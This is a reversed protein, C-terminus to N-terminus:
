APQKFKHVPSSNSGTSDNFETKEKGNNSIVAKDLCNQLAKALEEVYPSEFLDLHDGPVDHITVGKLAFPKWGLYKFDPMYFTQKKSRFLDIAGHYPSLKYNRFAIKYLKATKKSYVTFSEPAAQKKFLLKEFLPTLLIKAFRIKNTIVIKPERTMFAFAYATRMFLEYTTLSIKTLLPKHYISQSAYSDFMGLLIVNKGMAKLQKGMEYTILGGFSYGCLAYPGQPNQKIIQEVYHAAIDEMRDLHDDTGNLGRAQLGYVPQEPHLNKALTNFLLVSLGGGHILYVPVKSGTAKIAVLSDWNIDKKDIDIVTALKEITPSEFLATLPLRSGTKKEIAIMLKVAILSHGGLEFFDAHVSVKEMNLLEAWADALFKENKTRPATYKTQQHQYDPKPLAARDIKGNATLPLQKLLVFDNPVMYAPLLKKIESKWHNIQEGGPNINEAGSKVEFDTLSANNINISAPKEPIATAYRAPIYIVEVTNAGGDNPWRVYTKYELKAGLQWLWEPDIGEDIPEIKQKLESVKMTSELDNIWQLLAYDKAIRKNPIGNIQLIASPNQILMEEIWSITSTPQWEVYIDPTVVLPGAGIYLWVDYHCKTGENLFFGRRLQVDVAAIQPILTPLFYFFAPDAILEEEKEIRRDVIKKFASVPLDDGVQHLQDFAYHMKLAALTQVDGIYIVGGPKMVGIANQIVKILYHLDPFYQVVSHAVVLDLSHAEIGSFNDATAVTARVHNWQQPNVSKKENVKNIAVQSFDTAIYSDTGPAVEFLLQGGGCGLEMIKKASIAKIRKIGESAWEQLQARIDTATNYQSGIALDLKQEAIDLDSENQEAMTYLDDWRDRWNLEDSEAANQGPVIYAVLRQDGPRDERCIVLAEKIGNQRSLQHEIEAPEIRHGRIKVQQDMRGLCQIKGDPLYKGLDGSRYMKSGVQKSFPNAVFKEASLGPSNLYGRAVGDGAIYIEGVAGEPLPNFTDDLIYVQTNHIPHGITIIEDDSFIQTGTSYITTETPGYMNYLASCRAILKGALDKSMPEGCCLVKLSFKKEWGAELMIKYTSPTAQIITINERGTIDLLAFGDKSTQSNALVLKAGTILPLFLELGAIDFSITTVALLTDHISIGPMQQMSCLLNVLNSHQVMVGKPKGTSGSTYLIYALDNGSVAVEPDQKPYNSLQPWTDEIWIQKADTHFYTQYKKSTLLIKASSDHLMLEIRELPYEPDLPIYAGGSKLIALLSIVMQPSRDLAVGIADGRQVGTALLLAALQNARENLQQYTLQEDLFQLATKGAFEQARESILTHLAKHKPYNSFTHNLRDSVPLANTLLIDKIKQLPDKIVEQLLFKFKDMMESITSPKFLQTNYSWELVLAHETGTANLFIEFNEFERPNSQLQYRLDYFDVGDAMGMDINFILPVLAIRSPDRKVNLKQLLSGYTFRQHEYADLINKKRTKLYDIFATEGNPNSRLPLLNVCHGVLGYNDTASQGASPLGIVIDSQGTIRHLLVEFSALLTTVLSCGAKAGMEKIAKVWENELSYDDRRSKYTRPTPRPLDAPLDLVPVSEKYQNLWYNETAAYEPSKAYAQQQLAYESIQPAKQLFITEGKAYASYLKGIDQLLIAISWGDGIIHHITLTFFCATESLQHLSFRFLPGEQLHFPSHMQKKLFQDLSNKQEQENNGFIDEFNIKVPFDKYIILSEGNDNIVSRLAEHRAVLDRVSKEFASFVFPGELRLSVSENYSLNAQEGGLVCSLWIERQSENTIVIKEIERDKKVDATPQHYGPIFGAQKLEIITEEFKGIICEIDAPSHATTLFCPFGDLIHIGKYRMLTFFLESYSYEEKYKIKWLSSFQAIYLPTNHKQCIKNLADALYKTTANLTQQLQPGQAKLYLLSAKSTALALPHRVFTGAFYTVGAQPTSADGYQWFGGDLADMYNKKGAIVGISIGAGIVKGYTAIDAKIGFLAQTGGPHARFGTIIEDFILATGSQQTIGRLQKLFEVPQFEPRRSQVPEVLVAALEHARQKIIKLSEETGYDLVLMNQVAEPMIGPAAPFSKLKKTGRVIVEDIIGHYSGSFAVILSRGTVTRAIRMAGLVAESGTNCLAARDFNTFECILKSVEGALEHQPGIEYGAELQQQIAKKIIEPQYGLLNSGFGNLADIYENGDIDWLRCGKSKNVVISYVMEKTLPKFGSVVRPDAMYGRHQQTYNKSSITKKNYRRVLGDLFLQQQHALATAQKEIRATAGFPKKLEVIEEPTLSIQSTIPAVAPEVISAASGKGNLLAVQQPPLHADLFSALLNLSGYEEHLQRFTIPLGFEKKLNLAVQTLLLSDLGMEIFSIDPTVGQMDIGATDELLTKIKDLLAIKRAGNSNSSAFKAPQDNKNNIPTTYAPDHAIRPQIAAVPDVWCRKRDFAYLPINLKVRQQGEYFANWDIPIGHLWLQGLAKLVCYHDPQEEMPDLSSIAIVPNKCVQQRALTSTVNRPGAELMLKYGEEILTKLADSFRVTSRLHQSWYSPSTAQADTMWTATVTSIIPIRPVSLQISQVSQLFPAVIPDMMSSHFAHSTPLLKNTIGAAQLQNSFIEITESPGAVVCLVPSNIAALSLGAPLISVIQEHGARVSLMSGKSLEAMLRARTAILHLGDKLSFVGALHAAVFEGISHGIFAAPNIGWSMWLKALAYEIVFLAPQTYYTNNIKQDAQPGANKPYIITRIDENLDAELLAACDDVAQQFVPENTYLGKGMNIYQSGQGPFMFVVESSNEEASKSQSALLPATNLKEILEAKDAAVIFRRHNFQQRTTQLTYAIDPLSADQKTQLFAALQGAYSERSTVTKASWSILQVPREIVSQPNSNEFEELIVHVNTGGVGFSSVGARRKEITQWNTLTTNVFFPSNEFDITPNPRKYNISAPIKKHYISLVTKIFGAVGAAATLHGMNSKISGLACYQKKQQSGFAIKLGEIEIPDGIPTATGHAELYTISSPDIRADEIAMTIANAQGQASPATFSGKGGGDNSIGTGKIIAYITDGDRQAAELSKLLVVGAGDSFVTGDADADFSRCHGDRSLMAGQQYLHGSKVPVTIAVGGALAVDCRGNRISEVAQAIALLSTSCATYVSVAPGKLNLEYATRTAVFDKENYTMVQFSGLKDVLDKNSLVNNLYYTNNYSGAFVGVVGEYKEQLYGVNELAEWAIELFVRQQPDMLEALKPNIGFFSADFQDANNIIGRAKVYDTDAVLETPLYPDLEEKTFFSTTERGEKLLAWLEDITHAGPFRGAMSIVAIDTSSGPHLQKKFTSPDPKKRGELWAAIGNVTPFQYVKTVPLDYGYEQKLHAVTKLALLSNGGLEFFNDHAGVKKVTLLEKWAGAIKEETKNAPAIYRGNLLASADPIPLAKKDIKGNGTIPITDLPMLLRPIMYDPLKSELYNIIDEKNFAGESVIYAILRKGAAPDEIAVVVCHKVAAHQLLVNEIEGLEIRYGRIKVQDDIRGLYELNGDPLWRALDGTRYLRAGQEEHLFNKIFRTATLEPQNLYGRALGAGGIYLEGPEDLAALSQDGNLIFASLTPIPKGIVSTNNNLHSDEIEQYTVHVTTETIGYMNILRCNNYLKKWPKLKAPNLAEGGFIVYRTALNNAKATVWEQLVYFASPTQNLITVGQNILMEAFAKSDKAVQAPVVILRGGYFLAGYMEWVSFDFCFSHFMTWTDSSNFDYLPSETKFLRVVNLHEIMVGKPKGTSGSTYIIYALNAPHLFTQLKQKSEKEIAKRDGDLALIPITTITKLLSSACSDCIIVSAKTDTLIYNIRDAPYDPDIPVYAGGAKLIGLIGIIMELSRHICIPVLTEEQVGLDRLYHALQNSKEYLQLYTLKTNEFVVAIHDPTKKVQEDFLDVITKDKPYM